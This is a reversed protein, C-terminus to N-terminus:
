LDNYLEADHLKFLCSSNQFIIRWSKVRNRSPPPDIQGGGGTTKKVYSLFHQDSATSIKQSKKCVWMGLARGKPRFGPKLVLQRLGWACQRFSQKQRYCVLDKNQGVEVQWPKIFNLKKSLRQCLSVSQVLKAFHFNCIKQLCGTLPFKCKKLKEQNFILNNLIKCCNKCIQFPMTWPKEFICIKDNKCM